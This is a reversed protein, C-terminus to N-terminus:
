ITPPYIPNNERHWEAHHKRCLWRVSLWKDPLYSDHHASAKEGCKECPQKHLNRNEIACRVASYAKHLLQYKQTSYLRRMNRAHRTRCKKSKFYGEESRMQNRSRWFHVSCLGSVSYPNDCGKESCKRGQKMPYGPLPHSHAHSSRGSHCIFWLGHLFLQRNEEVGGGRDGQGEPATRCHLPPLPTFSGFVKRRWYDKTHKRRSGGSPSIFICGGNRCDTEGGGRRPSGIPPHAHDNVPFPISSTGFNMSDLQVIRVSDMDWRLIGAFTVTLVITPFTHPIDATGKLCKCRWTNQGKM